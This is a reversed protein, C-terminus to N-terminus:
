HIPLIGRHRLLYFKPTTQKKHIQVVRNRLRHKEIPQIQSNKHNQQQNWAYDLHTYIYIIYIYIYIYICIYIYIYMYIFNLLHGGHAM